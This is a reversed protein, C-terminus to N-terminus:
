LLGARELWMECEDLKTLAISGERTGSPARRIRDRLDSLLEGRGPGARLKFKIEHAREQARAVSNPAGEIGPSVKLMDAIENVLAILGPAITRREVDRRLEACEAMVRRAADITLEGHRADLVERVRMHHPPEMQPAIAWELRERTTEDGGVTHILVALLADVLGQTDAM